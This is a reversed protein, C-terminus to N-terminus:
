PSFSRLPFDLLLAFVVVFVIWFPRNVLLEKLGFCLSQGNTVIELRKMEQFQTMALEFRGDPEALGIRQVLLKLSEFWADKLLCFDCPCHSHFLPSQAPRLSAPSVSSILAPLPSLDAIM